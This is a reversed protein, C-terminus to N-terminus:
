RASVQVKRVYYRPDWNTVTAIFRRAELWTPFPDTIGHKLKRDWVVFATTAPTPTTSM